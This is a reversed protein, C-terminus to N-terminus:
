CWNHFQRDKQNKRYRCESRSWSGQWNAKRGYRRHLTAMEKLNDTCIDSWIDHWVADYFAGKPPQWTRADGQIISVKPDVFHPGVLAIVDPNIEIVTISQVEPIHRIVNLCCGLGLGQVLVNGKAHRFFAIHDRYEKPTDSMVLGQGSISLSTYNGEPVYSRNLSSMISNDRSVTFKSIHATGLQGAPLNCIWYDRLKNFDM